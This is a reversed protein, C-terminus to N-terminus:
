VKGYTFRLYTKLSLLLYNLDVVQRGLCVNKIYSVIRAKLVQSTQVGYYKKLYSAYRPFVDVLWSYSEGNPIYSNNTEHKRYKGALYNNYHLKFKSKGCRFFLEADCIQTDLFLTGDSLLIKDLSKKKFVTFVISFPNHFFSLEFLDKQIGNKLNHHYDIAKQEGTKQSYINFKFSVADVAPNGSFIDMANTLLESNYIDDANAIVVYNGSAKNYAENWNAGIGLNEENRYLRVKENNCYRKSLLEWTGDNSCDDQVILEWNTYTQKIFCSITEEIFQVANYTPICISVLPSNIM